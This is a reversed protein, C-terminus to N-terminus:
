NVVEGHAQTAPARTQLTPHQKQRPWSASPQRPQPVRSGNQSSMEAGPEEAKWPFTALTPTSLRRPSAALDWSGPKHPRSAKLSTWRTMTVRARAILLLQGAPFLIVLILSQPDWDLVRSWSLLRKEPGVGM